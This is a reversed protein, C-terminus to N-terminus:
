FPSNDACNMFITGIINSPSNKSHTNNQSVPFSAEQVGVLGIEEYHLYLAHAVVEEVHCGRYLGELVKLSSEELDLGQPTKLYLCFSKQDSDKRM